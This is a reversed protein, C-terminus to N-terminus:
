LTTLRQPVGNAYTFRVGVSHDCGDVRIRVFRGALRVVKIEVAEVQEILRFDGVDDAAAVRHGEIGADFAVGFIEVDEDARDITIAREFNEGFAAVARFDPPRVKEGFGDM